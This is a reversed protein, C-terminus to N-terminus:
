GKGMRAGVDLARLNIDLYKAESCAKVGARLAEMSLPLFQAAAGLAVTNLARASALAERASQASIITGRRGSSLLFDVMRRPEYAQSAISATVPIFGEDIVVYHGDARLYSLNRVAEGPELGILLDAQGPAILPSRSGEGIRIHSLVSGLRQAMGITESTRVFHGAGFAAHALARAAFVTGQGGVGAILCNFVKM